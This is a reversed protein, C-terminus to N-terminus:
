KLLQSIRDAREPSNDRVWQIEPVIRLKVERGVLQRLAKKEAELYEITHKIQLESGFLSYFVKAVSLDPSVEVELITLFAPTKLLKSSLVKQIESAVRQPRISM